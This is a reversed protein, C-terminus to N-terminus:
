DSGLDAFFEVFTVLNQITSNKMPVSPFLGRLFQIRQMRGVRDAEQPPVDGIEILYFSM